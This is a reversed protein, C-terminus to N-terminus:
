LLFHQGGPPLYLVEVRRGCRVNPCRWWTRVGGFGAPTREVPVAYRYDRKEGQWDTMTYSLELRDGHSYWSISWSPADGRRWSSRGPLNPRLWGKRAFEAANLAKSAECTDRAM